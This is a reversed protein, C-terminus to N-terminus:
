FVLIDVKSFDTLFKISLKPNVESCASFASPTESASRLFMNGNIYLVAFLRVTDISRPYIGNKEITSMGPSGKQEPLFEKNMLGNEPPLCVSTKISNFMLPIM